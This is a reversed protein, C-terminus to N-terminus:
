LDVKVNGVVVDLMISKVEHKGICPKGKDIEIYIGRRALGCQHWKKILKLREHSPKSDVYDLFMLLRAKKSMTHIISKSM